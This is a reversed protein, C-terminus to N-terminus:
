SQLVQFLYSGVNKLKTKNQVISQVTLGALVLV